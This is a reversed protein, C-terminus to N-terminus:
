LARLRREAQLQLQTYTCTHTRTHMRTHTDWQLKTFKCRVCGASQTWSCNHTHIRMHTHIHTHIYIRTYTYAHTHIHMHAHTYTYTHWQLKTFKSHIFAHAHIHKVTNSIVCISELWRKCGAVAKWRSPTDTRKYARIRTHPVKRHLLMAPGWGACMCIACQKRTCSLNLRM